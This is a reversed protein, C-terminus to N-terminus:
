ELVFVLQVTLDQATADTAVVAIEIATGNTITSTTIATGSGGGVGGNAAIASTLTSTSAFKVNITATNGGVTGVSSNVACLNAQTFYWNLKTRAVSSLINSATLAFIGPVFPVIQVICDPSGVWLGSITGSVDLGSVDIYNSGTNVATVIAYKYAGNYYRVPSGVVFSAASTTGIRTTSIPAATYNVIPQWRGYSQPSFSLSTTGPTITGNTTLVWGTNSYLTGERVTIFMGSTLTDTARTWSGSAPIIWLGRKTADTNNWDLVKDGTAVTVGNLTGGNTTTHPDATNTTAVRASATPSGSVFQTFTLSTTGPTITGLTDLIWLSNAYQTGQVVTVIDGSKLKDTSRTWAGSKAVWLGRYTATNNNM